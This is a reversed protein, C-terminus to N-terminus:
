RAHKGVTSKIACATLGENFKKQMALLLAIMPTSEGFYGWVPLTVSGKDDGRPVPVLLCRSLQSPRYFLGLLECRSRKELLIYLM